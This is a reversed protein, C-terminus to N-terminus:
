DQRYLLARMQNSATDFLGKPWIPLRGNSDIEYRQGEFLVQYGSLSQEKIQIRVDNFELQSEITWLRTNNPGLLECSKDKIKNKRIM